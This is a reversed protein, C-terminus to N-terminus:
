LDEIVKKNIQAYRAAEAALTRLIEPMTKGPVLSQIATVQDEDMWIRVMRYNVLKGNVWHYPKTDTFGPVAHTQLYEPTFGPTM